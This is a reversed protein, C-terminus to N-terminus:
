LSPCSFFFKGFASLSPNPNFRFHRVNEMKFKKYESILKKFKEKDMEEAMNEKNGEIMKMKRELDTYMLMMQKQLRRVNEEIEFEDVITMELDGKELGGELEEEILKDEWQVDAYIGVCTTSCNFTRTSNGEICDRGKPSCKAM